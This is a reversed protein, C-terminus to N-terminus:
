RGEGSSPPLARIATVELAFAVRGAGLRTLTLSRVRVGDPWSELTAVADLLAAFSGSGAFSREFAAAGPIEVKPVPKWGSSSALELGLEAFAEELRRSFGAADARHAERERRLHLVLRVLEAKRAALGRAGGLRGLLARTELGERGARGAGVGRHLSFLGAGLLLLAGAWLIATSRWAANM